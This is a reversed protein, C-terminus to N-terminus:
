SYYTIENIDIDDIDQTIQINSRRNPGDLIVNSM